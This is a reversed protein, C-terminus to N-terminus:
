FHQKLQRLAIVVCVAQLLCCCIMGDTFKVECM